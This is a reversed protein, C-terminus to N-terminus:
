SSKWKELRMLINPRKNEELYRATGFCMKKDKTHATKHCYFVSFDDEISREKIEKVRDRDLCLNMGNSLIPCNDCHCNLIKSSERM